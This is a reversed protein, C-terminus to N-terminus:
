TSQIRPRRISRVILLSVALSGILLSVGIILSKLPLSDSDSPNTQTDSADHASAKSSLKGNANDTNDDQQFTAHSKTLQIEYSSYAFISRKANNMGVVTIELAYSTTMNSETSSDDFRLTAYVLDKDIPSNHTVGVALTPDTCVMTAMQLLPDTTYLMGSLDTKQLDDLKSLRIFIGRFISTIKYVKIEYETNFLLSQIPQTDSVIPHDGIVVDIEARRLTGTHICRMDDPVTGNEVSSADYSELHLGGVAGGTDCSGAGLSYSEVLSRSLFIVITSLLFVNFSTPFLYRRTIM